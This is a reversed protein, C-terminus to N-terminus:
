FDFNENEEKKSIYVHSQYWKIYTRPGVFWFEHLTLYLFMRWFQIHILYDYVNWLCNTVQDFIINFFDFCICEIVNRFSKNISHGIIKPIMVNVYFSVLWQIVSFWCSYFYFVMSLWFARQEDVVLMSENSVKM